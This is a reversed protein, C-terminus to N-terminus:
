FFSPPDFTPPSPVFGGMEIPTVSRMGFDMAEQHIQREVERQHTAVAEQHMQHAMDMQQWHNDNGGFHFSPMKGGFFLGALTKLITVVFICGVIFPICDFFWEPNDFFGFSDRFSNLHMSGNYIVADHLEEKPLGNEGLRVLETVVIKQVTGPCNRLTLTDHSTGQPIKGLHPAPCTFTGRDTTVQIKCSNVWGYSVQAGTHNQYRLTVIQSDGRAQISAVQIELPGSKTTCALILGLVVVVLLCIIVVRKM